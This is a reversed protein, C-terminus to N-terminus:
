RIKVRENVRIRKIEYRIQKREGNNNNKEHRRCRFPLLMMNSGDLETRIMPMMPMDINGIAM